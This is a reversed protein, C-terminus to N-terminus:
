GAVLGSISGRSPAPGEGHSGEAKGKLGPTRLREGNRKRAGWRAPPEIEAGRM